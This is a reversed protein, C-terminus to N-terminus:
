DHDRLDLPTYLSRVPRDSVTSFRPLREGNESTSEQFLEQWKKNNAETKKLDEKTFM